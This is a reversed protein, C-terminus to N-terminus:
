FPLDEAVPELDSIHAQKATAESQKFEADRENKSLFEIEDAIVDTTYVTKGDRNQYSGTQISGVIGVKSGKALYKTCLEARGNWAIINIFDTQKEKTQRSVAITFKAFPIGSQTTGAEPDRTLNGILIVKNISM